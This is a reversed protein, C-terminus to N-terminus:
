WYTTNEVWGHRNNRIWSKRLEDYTYIWIAFPIAPLWWLFQISRTGCVTNAVPSYVLFGGLATEFLLAWNMFINTMGQTFLSKIRTKCIMLDAWQVIIISIFYATNARALIDARDNMVMPFMHKERGVAQHSFDDTSSECSMQQFEDNKKNCYAVWTVNGKVEWATSDLGGASKELVDKQQTSVPIWIQESKVAGDRWKVRLDGRNVPRSDYNEDIQREDWLKIYYAAWEEKCPLNTESFAENWTSVGVKTGAKMNPCGVLVKFVERYPSSWDRLGGGGNKWWGTAGSATRVPNGDEKPQGIETKVWKDLDDRCDVGPNGSETKECRGFEPMYVCYSSSTALPAIWSRIESDPALCYLFFGDNQRGVNSNADFLIYNDLAPLHFYRLGWANLCVIYAYVGAMSQICGIQPYAFSILRMTVLKDVGPDRPPRVMIDAEKGEHAMSIAPALDTGLDVLLIMVTTLPLPIGMTQNLLFPLIEPINSSLTYAISKKLNDFIIRGEEVGNVISAFNDDSLIMDAAEKAVETGTIGMAVGIDAAKLAPSDNVGDGTVAVIGGRARVANVIRLKQEPSTRAFVCDPKKLVENWFVNVEEPSYNDLVDTLEKGTVVVAKFEDEKIESPDCGREEAVEQKTQNYIIVQKGKKDTRTTPTKSIIMGDEGRVIEYVPQVIGVKKAIAFATEPHDGTVMIVKIGASQCKLVAQPVSPRPPDIMAMMGIFTLGMKPQDEQGLPFNASERNEGKFAFRGKKMFIVEGAKIGLDKLSMADEMIEPKKSSDIAGSWMYQCARKLGTQQSMYEKVANITVELNGSFSSGDTVKKLDSLPIPYQKGNYDVVLNGKQGDNRQMKRWSRESEPEESGVDYEVPDLVREAFSLVREGRKAFNSTGKRITAKMDETLDQIKGDMMITSCMDLVREAAGKLQVLAADSNSDDKTPNITVAFKNGSNFNINFFNRNKKDERWVDGEHLYKRSIHSNCFKFIAAETAQGDVIRGREPDDVWKSWNCLTGVRFLREFTPKYRSDEDPLGTQKDVNTYYDGAMPDATNAEFPQMDFWVDAVTMVSTTLTGTKDSCIVSTSGLTEVSELNKVQVNKERMRVATITLSVTITALLGEPVNAVIIGILFIVNRVLDGNKMMGLIFFSIGLGFAIASVKIVFDEIEKAIPTEEAETESALAAITGMFTKDGTAHVMAKGSGKMFYTGFFCLNKSEIFEDNSQNSVAWTRKQPESEGTLSANDVESDMSCRVIRLDAPVKKGPVLSVIDGPVLDMPQVKVIKGNRYTDVDSPMLKSFNEMIDASKSEQIYGFCGTMTVVSSLVICLYINTPDKVENPDAIWAILCLLAGVWLLQNFFGGFVNKLLRLWWPDRYGPTLRNYGWKERLKIVGADTLGTEFNTEYEKELVRLEKGHVDCRYKHKDADDEGGKKGKGKKKRRKKQGDWKVDAAAAIIDASSHRKQPAM